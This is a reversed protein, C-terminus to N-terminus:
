LTDKYDPQFVSQQDKIWSLHKFYDSNVFIEDNEKINEYDQPREILHCFYDISKRLNPGDLDTNAAIRSMAFDSQSLAVGKSNIRNFVETVKDIDLDGPLEIVGVKKNVINTLRKIKKSISDPNTGIKNAYNNIFSFEAFDEHFLSSIDNIWEDNKSIVPNLVEFRESMPNFSIKINNFKYNKDFVKRGKLSASLSTIRQQGDIIIKKNKSISGDKLGTEENNWLIIYGIPYGKYLSDILDRVQTAEWVFPRQIEPIAIVNEDINSLITSIGISNVEYNEM